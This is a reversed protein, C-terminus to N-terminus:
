GRQNFGQRRRTQDDHQHDKDEKFTAIQSIPHNTQNAIPPQRQGGSCEVFRPVPDTAVQEHLGNEITAKAHCNATAQEENAQWM